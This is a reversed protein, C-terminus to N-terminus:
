LITNQPKTTNKSIRQKTQPYVFGCNGRVQSARVLSAVRFSPLCPKCKKPPDSFGFIQFVNTLNWRDNQMFMEVQLDLIWTNKFDQIGNFVLNQLSLMLIFTMGTSCSQDKTTSIKRDFFPPKTGRSWFRSKPMDKAYRQCIHIFNIFDVSKLM